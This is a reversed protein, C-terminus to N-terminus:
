LVGGPYLTRGSRAAEVAIKKAERADKETMGYMKAQLREDDTLDFSEEERQAVRGPKEMPIAGMGKKGPMLRDMEGRQLRLLQAATEFTKPNILDAKSVIKNGYSRYVLNIVDNEIGDYLEKNRETFFLDRGIAANSQAEQNDRARQQAEWAQQVQGMRQNLRQDLWGNLNTIDPEVEPRHQEPQVPPRAAQQALYEQISGLQTEMARLKERESGRENGWRGVLKEVNEVMKAIDAPSKGAYKPDVPQATQDGESQEPADEVPANEALGEVKEDEVNM